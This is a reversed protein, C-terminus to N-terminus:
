FANRAWFFKVPNAPPTLFPWFLDSDSKQGMGHFICPSSLVYAIKTVLLLVSLRFPWARLGQDLPRKSVQALGTPRITGSIHANGYFSKKPWFTLIEAESGEQPGQSGQFPNYYAGSVVRSHNSIIKLRKTKTLFKKQIYISYLPSIPWSANKKRPTGERAGLRNSIPPTDKLTILEGM